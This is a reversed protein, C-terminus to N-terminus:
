QPVKVGDGCVASIKGGSLFAATFGTTDDFVTESKPLQGSAFVVYESVWSVGDHYSYAVGSTEGNIVATMPGGLKVNSIQEGTLSKSFESLKKATGNELDYRMIVIVNGTVQFTLASQEAVMGSASKLTLPEPKSPDACDVRLISDSAGNITLLTGDYWMGGITEPVGSLIATPRLDSGFLTVKNADSSGANESGSESSDSTKKEELIAGGNECFAVRLLKGTSNTALKEGDAKVILGDEGNDLAFRGDASAAVPDGIVARIEKQEGNETSYSASVGYSYGETESVIVKEPPMASLEETGYKPLYVDEDGLEFSEYFAPTYVTGLKIEGDSYEYDTLVGDQRVTYEAKGGSIKVYGSQDGSFLAYLKGDEDFAAVFRANGPATVDSLSRVTGNEVVNASIAEESVSYMEMGISFSGLSNSSGESSILLDGFLTSYDPSVASPTEGGPTKADYAYYIKDFIESSNKAYHLTKPNNNGVTLGVVIGASILVAAGSAAWIIAGKRSVRPEDNEDYDDYEDDYEDDFEEEFEEDLDDLNNDLKKGGFKKRPEEKIEERKEQRATKIIEEKDEEEYEEEPSDESVPEFEDVTFEDTFNDIFKNTPKGTFENAFEDTLETKVKNSAPPAPPEEHIDALIESTEGAFAKRKESKIKDFAAIFSLDETVDYTDAPKREEATEPAEDPEEPAPEEPTIKGARIEASIKEFVATFSMERMDEDYEPDFEEEYNEAESDPKEDFEEEFEEDDFEEVEEPAPEDIPEEDEAEEYEEIEHSLEESKELRLTLTREWVQRATLLMRTYDDSDLESNELTLILGQLNMAPNQKIRAVVGEPAGCGELLNVFDTSGIGLARLRMLFTFADPRPPEADEDILCNIVNQPVVEEPVVKRRMASRMEEITM